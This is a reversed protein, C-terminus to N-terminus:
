KVKIITLRVNGIGTCVFLCVFNMVLPKAWSSSHLVNLPEAGRM